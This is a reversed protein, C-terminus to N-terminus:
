QQLILQGHLSMVHTILKIVVLRADSVAYQYVMKVKISPQPNFYAATRLAHVFHMTGSEHILRNFEESMALEWRQKDPGNMVERFSISSPAKDLPILVNPTDIAVVAAASTFRAPPVHTRQPRHITLVSPLSAPTASPSHSVAPPVSAAIYAVSM